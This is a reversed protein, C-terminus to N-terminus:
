LLSVTLAMILLIAPISLVSYAICLTAFKFFTRARSQAYFRRLAMFYYVFFGILLGDILVEAWLPDEPMLAIVAFLLFAFAHLHLAFVLHEVYFKGSRWYLLRLLLAYVPLLFFLALPANDVLRDFTDAPDHLALVVQSMMHRGTASPQDDPDANTAADMLGLLAARAPSGDRALIADLAAAARPELSARFAQVQADNLAKDADIEVVQENGGALEATQAFVFFFALSAFIYLRVPSVFHARRNASFAESLAGPRFFLLKLSRAIRGDLEFAERLLEMVMPPLARRYDRNNQGCASCYPGDRTHKCNPCTATNM